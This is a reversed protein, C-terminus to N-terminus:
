KRTRQYPRGLPEKDPIAKLQFYEPEHCRDDNVDVKYGIIVAMLTLRCYHDRQGERNFSFKVKGPMSRHRKPM